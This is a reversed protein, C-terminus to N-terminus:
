RKKGVSRSKRPVEILLSSRAIDSPAVALENIPLKGMSGYRKKILAQVTPHHLHYSSLIRPKCLELGTAYKYIKWVLESCYIRDDSWRFYPDYNKGILQKSYQQAKLTTEANIYQHADKLRMAYFARPNRAIFHALPTAKVPQVAEIVWPKGQNFYVLGVHSWPSHTAAKVAKAQTSNGGQFVIDGNKIDYPQTPRPIKIGAYSTMMSSLLYLCFLAINKSM